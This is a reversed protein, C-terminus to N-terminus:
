KGCKINEEEILKLYAAIGDKGTAFGARDREFDEVKMRAIWGTGYPDKNIATVGPYDEVAENKAIVEGELPAPLPGVWKGSELIAIPKGKKVFTGVPKITAKALVGSLNQAPDTLGVTIIDGGEDKMWVHREIWYYLGDPIICGEEAAIKVIGKDYILRGHPNLDVEEVM